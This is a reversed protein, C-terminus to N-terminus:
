WLGLQHGAALFSVMVIGLAVLIGVERSDTPNQLLALWTPEGLEVMVDRSRGEGNAM